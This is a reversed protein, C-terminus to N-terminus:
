GAAANLYFSIKRGLDKSRKGTLLIQNCTVCRKKWPLFSENVPVLRPTDIAVSAESSTSIRVEPETSM